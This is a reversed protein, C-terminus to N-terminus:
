PNLKKIQTNDPCDKVLEMISKNLKPHVYTESIDALPYLVFNRNQIHPHPVILEPLNIIDNDYFLLDIDIVRAIYVGKSSNRIRGMGKEICLCKDLVELANLDTEIEIVTNLFWHESEFGWPETEYLGGNNIIKGIKLEIEGKVLQINKRKDGLNSGLSLFVRHMM